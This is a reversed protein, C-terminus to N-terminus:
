KSMKEQYLQACLTEIRKDDKAQLADILAKYLDIDYVPKHFTRSFEEMLRWIKLLLQNEGVDFITYFFDYHFTESGAEFLRVHEQLTQIDQDSLQDMAIKSAEKEILQKTSKLNEKTKAEQLIFASLIEVMHYPRYSSLFTGEGRRTEILGLLEMARLAERVSSRGAGLQESLERESPLKDGPSLKNLDILRRIEKLVEEYVKSKSPITM